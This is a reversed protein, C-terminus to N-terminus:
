CKGVLISEDCWHLRKGQLWGCGSWSRTFHSLAKCPSIALSRSWALIAATKVLIIVKMLHYNIVVGLKSLGWIKRSFSHKCIHSLHQYSAKEGEASTPPSLFFSFCEFIVNDKPWMVPRSKCLPGPHSCRPLVIVQMTITFSLFKTWIGGYIM